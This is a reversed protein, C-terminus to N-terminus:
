TSTAGMRLSAGLIQLLICLRQIAAPLTHNRIIMGTIKQSSRLYKKTHTFCAYYIYVSWIRGRAHKDSYYSFWRHLQLRFRLQNLVFM